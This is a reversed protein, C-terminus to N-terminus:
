LGRRFFELESVSPEGAFNVGYSMSVEIRELRAVKTKLYALWDRRICNGCGKCDHAFDIYSQGVGTRGL